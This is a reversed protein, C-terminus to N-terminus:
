SQSEETFADRKARAAKYGEVFEEADAGIGAWHWVEVLLLDPYKKFLEYGDDFHHSM